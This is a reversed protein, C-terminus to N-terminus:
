RLRSARRYRLKSSFGLPRRAAIAPSRATASAAPIPIKLAGCRRSMSLAELVGAPAQGGDAAAAGAPVAVDRPAAPAPGATISPEATASLLAGDAGAVGAGALLEAAAGAAVVGAAGSGLVDAGAGAVDAGAGDVDAGAGVVDAGAGAVDVVGAGQEDGVAVAGGGAAFVSQTIM